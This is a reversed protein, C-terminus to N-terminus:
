QTQTTTPVYRVAQLVQYVQDQHHSLLYMYQQKNHYHLSDWMRATDTDKSQIIISCSCGYIIIYEDYHSSIKCAFIKITTWERM